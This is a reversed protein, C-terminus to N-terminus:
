ININVEYEGVKKTNNFDNITIDNLGIRSTDDYKRLNNSLDATVDFELEKNPTINNKETIHNIPAYKNFIFIIADKTSTEEINFNEIDIIHSLENTFEKL